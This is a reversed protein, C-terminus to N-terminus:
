SRLATICLILMILTVANTNPISTIASWIPPRGSGGRQLCRATFGPQGLMISPGVDITFDAVVPASTLRRCLGVAAAVRHDLRSSWRVGLVGLTRDLNVQRGPVRATASEM